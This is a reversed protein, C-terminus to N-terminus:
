MPEKVNRSQSRRVGGDVNVYGWGLVEEGPDEDSSSSSSSERESFDPISGMTDLGIKTAPKAGADDDL